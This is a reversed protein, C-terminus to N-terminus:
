FDLSAQLGWTRKPAYITPAVHGTFFSFGKVEENTVNRVYATLRWGGDPKGLSVRIDGQVHGPDKILATNFQDFFIESRYTWDTAFTLSMNDAVPVEYSGGLSATWEPAYPLRNGAIQVTGAGPIPALYDRYKADNYGISGYLRFQRTPAFEIELEAGRIRSSAANSLVLGPGTPNNSQVQQDTYDLQYIGGNVRLKRDFWESKFGIEYSTVLEPKLSVFTGPNTIGVPFGGSRFGTGVKAFILSQESPKFNATLDWTFREFSREASVSEFLDGFNPDVPFHSIAVPYSLDAETFDRTVFNVFDFAFLNAVVTDNRKREWSYRAGGVISFVPSLDYTVSTFAALSDTKQTTVGGFYYEFGLSPDLTTSGSGQDAYIRDHQGFVGFIARLPKQADTALRFEQSIQSTDSRQQSHFLDGAVGDDNTALFNSGEQWGTISTLTASGIDQDIKLVAGYSSFEERIPVESNTQRSNPSDPAAVGGVCKNYIDLFAAPDCEGGLYQAIYVPGDGDSKLGFIKLNVSTTDSPTWALQLRGNFSTYHGLRSGDFLNDIYNDRRDVRFSARMALDDGIPQNLAGEASYHGYDGGGGDLQLYGGADRTPTQSYYALAGGTTNKGFLTGQPGRLVEIRNLDFIQTGIGFQFPQYIDDLYIAVPSASGLGFDTSAIGRISVHTQGNSLGQDVSLSPALGSLQRPDSIGSDRLADGGIASVASPVDQVNTARRTATVTIESLGGQQDDSGGQTVASEQALAPQAAIMGVCLALVASSVALNVSKM